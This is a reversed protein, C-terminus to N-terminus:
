GPIWQTQLWADLFIAASLLLAVPILALASTAIIRALPAAAGPTFRALARHAADATVGPRRVYYLSTTRFSSRYRLWIGSSVEVRRLQRYRMFFLLGVAGMEGLMAIPEVSYSPACGQAGCPARGIESFSYISAAIFIALLALALVIALGLMALSVRREHPERGLWRQVRTQRSRAQSRRPWAEVPVGTVDIAHALRREFQLNWQWALFSTAIILTCLITLVFAGIPTAFAWQLLPWPLHGPKGGARSAERLTLMMLALLFPLVLVLVGATLDRVSQGPTEPPARTAQM